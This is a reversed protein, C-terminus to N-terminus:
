FFLRLVIQPKNGLFRTHLKEKIEKIKVPGFFRSDYSNERNDGLLFIEDSDLTGSYEFKEDRIM